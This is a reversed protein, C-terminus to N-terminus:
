RDASYFVFTALLIHEKIKHLRFNRGRGRNIEKRIGANNGILLTYRTVSLPLKSNM